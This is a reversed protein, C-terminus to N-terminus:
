RVAMIEAIVEGTKNFSGPHAAKKIIKLFRIRDTLVPDCLFNKFKDSLFSM